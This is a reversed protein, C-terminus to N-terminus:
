FKENKFDDDPLAKQRIYQAIIHMMGQHLDEVIGYNHVDVHISIDALKRAAGGAFGTFAITKCGIKKGDSLAKIINPSNGSGSIVILADNKTAFRNLQYSFIEEYSIDNAIASIIEVNNSLSHVKPKLKTGTSILKTYDAIFHNAIAASGGNGCVFLWNNNQFVTECIEACLKLQENDILKSGDILNNYYDKVFDNFDYYKHSPFSM